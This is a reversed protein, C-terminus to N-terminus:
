LGGVPAGDGTTAGTTDGSDDSGGSDGSTTATPDQPVTPNLEVDCQKRAYDAVARSSTNADPHDGVAARIEAAAAEPDSRNAWVADIVVQVLDVVEDVDPAIDDPATDRLRGFAEEAADLSRDLRGADQDAFGTFVTALSPVLRLADCFTEPSAEPEDSCGALIAASAALALVGLVGVTARPARRRRRLAPEPGPM